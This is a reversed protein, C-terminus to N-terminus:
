YRMETDASFIKLPNKVVFFRDFYSM